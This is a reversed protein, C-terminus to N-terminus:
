PRIEAQLSSVNMDVLIILYTMDQAADLLMQPIFGGCMQKNLEMESLYKDAVMSCESVLGLLLGRHHGIAVVSALQYLAAM